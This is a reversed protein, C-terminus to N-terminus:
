YVKTFLDGSCKKKKSRSNQLHNRGQVNQRLEQVAGATPTSIVDLERYLDETNKAQIQACIKKAEKKCNRYEVELRLKQETNNSPCKSWAKFAM